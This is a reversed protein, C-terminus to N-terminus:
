GKEPKNAAMPYCAEVQERLTAMAWFKIWQSKYLTVPFRGFGYVSIAGKDGVKVTVKLGAKLAANEARLRMLEALDLSQRQTLDQLVASMTDEM